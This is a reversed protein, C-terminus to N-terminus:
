GQVPAPMPRVSVVERTTRRMYRVVKSEYYKEIGEKTHKVDDDMGMKSWWWGDECLQCAHSWEGDEDELLAIKDYGPELSDDIGCDEFDETQLALVLNEITPATGVGKPWYAAISHRPLDPTWNRWKEKAAWAVCNYVWIPDSSAECPDDPFWAKVKEQQPPEEDSSM